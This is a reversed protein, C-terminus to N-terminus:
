MLICHNQSEILIAPRNEQVQDPRIPSAATCTCYDDRYLRPEVPM